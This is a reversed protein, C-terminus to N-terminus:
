KIRGATERLYRARQASRKMKALENEAEEFRGELVYRNVLKISHRNAAEEEEAGLILSERDASSKLQAALPTSEFELYLDLPATM